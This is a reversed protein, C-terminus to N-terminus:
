VGPLPELKGSPTLSGESPPAQIEELISAVPEANEAPSPADPLGGLIAEQAVKRDDQIGYTPPKFGAAFVSQDEGNAICIELLLTRMKWATAKLRAGDEMKGCTLLYNGHDNAWGAAEVLIARRLQYNSSRTRNLAEECAKAAGSLDGATARYLTLMCLSRIAQFHARPHQFDKYADFRLLAELEFKAPRGPHDLDKNYFGWAQSSLSDGLFFGHHVPSMKFCDRAADTVSAYDSLPWSEDWYELVDYTRRRLLLGQLLRFHMAHLRKQLKSPVWFIHVQTEQCGNLAEPMRGVATSWRGHCSLAWTMVAHHHPDRLKNTRLIRMAGDSQDFASVLQKSQFLISGVSLLQLVLRMATSMAPHATHMRRVMAEAERGMALAEERASQQSSEVLGRAIAGQIGAYILTWRSSPSGDDSMLQALPKVPPTNELIRSYFGLRILGLAIIYTGIAVGGFAQKEIPSFNTAPDSVDRLYTTVLSPSASVCSVQRSSQGLPSIRVDAGSSM